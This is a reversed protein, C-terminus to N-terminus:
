ISLENLQSITHKTGFVMAHTKKANLTLTNRNMWEKAELLRENLQRETDGRTFGTVTIVTDDTYLHSRYQTLADLLDNIFLVFLLPGM